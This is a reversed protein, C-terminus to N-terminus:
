LAPLASGYRSMATSAADRRQFSPCILHDLLNFRSKYRGIIIMETKILRFARIEEHGGARLGSSIGLGKRREKDTDSLGRAALRKGGGSFEQQCLPFNQM